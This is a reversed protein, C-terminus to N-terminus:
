GRRAFVTTTVLRVPLTEGFRELVERTAAQLAARREAPLRQHDSITGTFAAWEEATTRRESIYTKADVMSFPGRLPFPDDAPLEFSPIRGYVYVDPAHKKYVVDLAQMVPEALLQTNWFRVFLGGPRLVQALKEAGRRPDIWHWADGCTLLDFRRGADDWEEFPAIEVRVGHDRAVAAMRPDLEVGLVSVRRRGLGRAVKGTGCGVDLVETSGALAALDDLLTDPFAPRYREYQEAVGGFSEARDRELHLKTFFAEAPDAPSSM